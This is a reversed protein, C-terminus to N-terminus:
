PPFGMADMSGHLVDPLLLLICATRREQQSFTLLLKPSVDNFWVALCDTAIHSHVFYETSYVKCGHHLGGHSSLLSVGFIVEIRCVWAGVRRSPPSIGKRQAGGGARNRRRVPAFSPWCGLRDRPCTDSSVIGSACMSIFIGFMNGSVVPAVFAEHARIVSSSDTLSDWRSSRPHLIGFFFYHSEDREPNKTNVSKWM